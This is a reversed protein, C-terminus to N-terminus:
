ELGKDTHHIRGDEDYFSRVFAGSDDWYSEVRYPWAETTGEQMVRILLSDLRREEAISNSVVLSWALSGLVSGLILGIIFALV